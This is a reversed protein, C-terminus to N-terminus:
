VLRAERRKGQWRVLGLPVPDPIGKPTAEVTAARMM